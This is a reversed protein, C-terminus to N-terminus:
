KGLFDEENFDSVNGCVDCEGYHGIFKGGGDEDITQMKHVTVANCKVCHIGSEFEELIVPNAM